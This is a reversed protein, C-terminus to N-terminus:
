PLPIGALDAEVVKRDEADPVQKLLERAQAIHEKAGATDKNIALAHALGQHACALFFPPIQGAQAIELSRRAHYVAPEPRGLATYCRAIQWHAVSAEKPGGVRSWHYASAYARLLMQDNEEATRGPKDLLEWTQNFLQPALARHFEAPTLKAPQSAPPDAPHTVPATREVCCASLALPLFWYALHKM